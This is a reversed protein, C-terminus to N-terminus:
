LQNKYLAMLPIIADSIKDEDAQWKVGYGGAKEWAKINTGYDDILINGPAYLPKNDSIIIEEPELHINQEVWKIKEEACGEYDTLPSSLISFGGAINQISQILTNAMPFAPLNIFFNPTQLVKKLTKQVDRHEMSRWGKDNEDSLKLAESFFSALVGDLDVYVKM